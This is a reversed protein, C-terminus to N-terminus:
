LVPSVYRAALKQWSAERHKRDPYREEFPDYPAGALGMAVALCSFATFAPLHGSRYRLRRPPPLRWRQLPAAERAAERAARERSARRVAGVWEKYTSLRASRRRAYFQYQRRARRPDDDFPDEDYGDLAEDDDDDDDLSSSSDFTSLWAPPLGAFVVRAAVRAAPSLPSDMEPVSLGGDSGETKLEQV